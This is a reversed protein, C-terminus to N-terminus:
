GFYHQAFFLVLAFFGAWMFGVAAFISGRLISSSVERPPLVYLVILSVIYVLLVGYSKTVWHHGSINKLTDKLAPSWEAAFTIAVVFIIALIASVASSFILKPM